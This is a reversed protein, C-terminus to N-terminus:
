EEDGRTRTFTVRYGDTGPRPVDNGDVVQLVRVSPLPSGAAVQVRFEIVGAPERVLLLRRGGTVPQQFLTVSSGAVAQVDADSLELLAAGEPGHSSELSAIYEGGPLSTDTGGGDCAALALLALPVALLTRIRMTRRRWPHISARM